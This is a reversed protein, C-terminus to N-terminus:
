LQSVEDPAALCAFSWMWLELKRKKTRLRVFNDVFIQASFANDSGFIRMFDQVQVVSGIDEAFIKEIVM